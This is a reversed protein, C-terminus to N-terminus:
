KPRQDKIDPEGWDSTKMHPPTLNVTVKMPRTTKLRTNHIPIYDTNYKTQCM